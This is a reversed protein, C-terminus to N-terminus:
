VEDRSGAFRHIIDPLIRCGLGQYWAGCLQSWPSPTSHDGLRFIPPKHSCAGFAESECGYRSLLRSFGRDVARHHWHPAATDVIPVARRCARPSRSGGRGLDRGCVILAPLNQLVFGITHAVMAPLRADLVKHPM